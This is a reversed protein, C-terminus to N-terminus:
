LCCSLFLKDWLVCLIYWMTKDCSNNVMTLNNIDHGCLIVNYCM